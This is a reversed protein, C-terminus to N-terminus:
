RALINAEAIFKEDPVFRQGGGRRGYPFRQRVANASGLKLTRRENKLLGVGPFCRSGMKRQRGRARGISVLPVHATKGWSLGENKILPM